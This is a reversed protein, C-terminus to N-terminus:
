DTAQTPDWEKDGTSDRLYRLNIGARWDGHWGKGAMVGILLLGALFGGVHAEWAVPIVIDRLSKGTDIQDLIAPGAFLLVVTLNSTLLFRFATGVRKSWLPYLRDEYMHLRYLAAIIGYIAGSAGVIPLGGHPHLLWYFSNGALGCLLYFITYPVFAAIGKGFRACVLPAASLYALMNVILHTPSGHMFISTILAFYHGEDMAKGSFAWTELPLRDLVQFGYVVVCVVLILYVPWNGWHFTSVMDKLTIDREIRALTPSQVFASNDVSPDDSM